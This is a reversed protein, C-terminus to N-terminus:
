KAEKYLLYGVGLAAVAVAVTALTSLKGFWAFLSNGKQAASNADNGAQTAANQAASLASSSSAPGLVEVRMVDLATDDFFPLRDLAVIIDALTKNAGWTMSLRVDYVIVSDGPVTAMPSIPVFGMGPLADRVDESYTRADFFTGTLWEGLAWTWTVRLKDGAQLLTNRSGNVIQVAQTAM